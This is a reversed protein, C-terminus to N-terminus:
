LQGAKLRQKKSQRYLRDDSDSGTECTARREIQPLFRTGTLLEILQTRCQAKFQIGGVNLRDVLRRNTM